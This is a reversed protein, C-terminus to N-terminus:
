QHDVSISTTPILSRKYLIAKVFRVFSCKAVLSNASHFPSSGNEHLSQTLLQYVLTSNLEIHTCVYQICTRVHTHTHLASAVFFGTLFRKREM